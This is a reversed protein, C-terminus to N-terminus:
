LDDADQVPKEGPDEPVGTWMGLPDTSITEGDAVSNSARLERKIKNEGDPRKKKM